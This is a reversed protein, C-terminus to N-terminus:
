VRTLASQKFALDVGLETDSVESNDADLRLDRIWFESGPDQICRM